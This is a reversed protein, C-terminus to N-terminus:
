NNNLDTTNVITTFFVCVSRFYTLLHAMFNVGDGFFILKHNKGKKQKIEM